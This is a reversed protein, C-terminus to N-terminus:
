PSSECGRSVAAPWILSSTSIPSTRAMLISILKDQASITTGSGNRNKTRRASGHACAQLGACAGPRRLELIVPAAGTVSQPDSLGSLVERDAFTWWSVVNSGRRWIHFQSLYHGLNSRGTLVQAGPIARSSVQFQRNHQVASRSRTVTTYRDNDAASNSNIWM